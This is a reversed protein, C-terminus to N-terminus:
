AKEKDERFLGEGMGLLIFLYPTSLVQQFSVMNHATYALLSVACVYLLPQKGAKKSYRVLASIVFGMYFLLGFAGTNLLISLGENHANTLRETGFRRVLRAALSPQQYIYAAFCDPGVGFMKHLMDLEQYAEISCNWATGRGNGWDERFLMVQSDNRDDYLQLVQGSDRDDYLQLAQGSDQGSTVADENQYFLGGRVILGSFGVCLIVMVIMVCIIRGFRNACLNRVKDSDEIGKKCVWLRIMLYVALLLCLAWLTINTDTLRELVTPSGGNVASGYNMQLGPLCRFLRGTQCGAAFIMCLEIWRYLRRITRVSLLLLMAFVAGFVLYASESGQVVGAFMAVFSYFGAFIKQWRKESYWYLTMGMPATVSWYGCFWNINGLTSIFVPTQGEMVIPYISYRNLIGLLFVGAAATLWVMLWGASCRFYVSFLFYLLVLTLQMVTGMHWGEAGWLAEEQYSSCLYSLVVTMFYGYAFWDTVSMRRYYETLLGPRRILTGLVLILMVALVPFTVNRFFVYKVEGIRLYGGPAYYPYVAAMMLFYLSLIIQGIIKGYGKNKNNSVAKVSKDGAYKETKLEQIVM